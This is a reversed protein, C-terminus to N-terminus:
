SALSGLTSSKTNHINRWAILPNADSVDRSGQAINLEVERAQAVVPAAGVSESDQRPPCRLAEVVGSLM